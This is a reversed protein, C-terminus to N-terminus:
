RPRAILKSAFGDEDREITFEWETPKALPAPVPAPAPAAQAHVVPAPLERTPEGHSEAVEELGEAQPKQPRGFVLIEDPVAKLKPLNM